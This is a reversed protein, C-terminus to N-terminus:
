ARVAAEWRTCQQEYPSPHEFGHADHWDSAAKQYHECKQEAQHYGEHTLEPGGYALYHTFYSCEHKRCAEPMTAEPTATELQQVRQQLTEVTNMLDLMANCLLLIRKDSVDLVANLLYQHETLDPM